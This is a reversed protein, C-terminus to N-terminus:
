YIQLFNQYKISVAYDQGPSQINLAPQTIFVDKTGASFSVAANSNTSARIVDRTITTASALTGFGVEWAGNTTDAICYLFSDGTSMSNAFTTYGTITSNTITITGTGTTTTTDKVRDATVYAM